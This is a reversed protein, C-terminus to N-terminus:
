PSDSPSGVWAALVRVPRGAVERAKIFAELASSADTTVRCRLVKLEPLLELPPEGQLQLSRSIDGVLVSQVRLTEVNNFSMLLKRWQSRSAESLLTHNKYELSLVEVSSFAPSLAHFFQAVFFLQHDLRGGRAEICFTHTREEDRPYIKVSVARDNFL